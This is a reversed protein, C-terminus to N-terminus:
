LKVNFILNTINCERQPINQHDTSAYSLQYLLQNTILLDPTRFREGAKVHSQCLPCNGLHDVPASQLDAACASRLNSDKVAWILSHIHIPSEFLARSIFQSSFSCNIPRIASRFLVVRVFGFPHTRSPPKPSVKGWAKPTVAFRLTLAM